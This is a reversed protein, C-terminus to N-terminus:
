SVVLNEGGKELSKKFSNFIEFAEKKCDDENDFAEEFIKVATEGDIAIIYGPQLLSKSRNIELHIKRM